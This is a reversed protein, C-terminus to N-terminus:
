YVLEWNKATITARQAETLNAGVTNKLTLTQATLGTLDKLHDIISQVSESTLPSWQFNISTGIVGEFTINELNTANRFILACYNNENVRFLDITKIKSDAFCDTSAVKSDVLSIEGVRTIASIAFIKTIDNYPQFKMVLNREALFSVLDINLKETYYFMSSGSVIAEDIRYKPNFNEPTWGRGAYM